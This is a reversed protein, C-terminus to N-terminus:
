DEFVEGNVIKDMREVLYQQAKENFIVSIYRRGGLGSEVRRNSFGLEKGKDTVSKYDVDMEDDHALELIGEAVLRDLITAVKVPKYENTDACAYMDRIFHTVTTSRQLKFKDVIEPPFGEKRTDRKKRPAPKEEKAEEKPAYLKEELVAKVIFMTRIIEPSNLVSDERAEEGSGPDLGMALKIVCDLANEIQTNTIM